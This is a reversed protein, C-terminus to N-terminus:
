IQSVVKIAFDSYGCILQLSFNKERAIGREDTKHTYTHWNTHARTNTYLWAHDMCAARICLHIYKGKNKTKM